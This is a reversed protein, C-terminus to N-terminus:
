HNHLYEELMQQYGRKNEVLQDVAFQLGPMFMSMATWLPEVIDQIFYYQASYTKYDEQLDHLFPSTMIGLKKEKKAQSRFEGYCREMWRKAVDRNQTQAGIDATHVLIRTFAIRSEPDFKAVTGKVLPDADVFSIEAGIGPPHVLTRQQSSSGSSSSSSSSSTPGSNGRRLKPPRRSSPSPNASRSHENNSSSGGGSANIGSLSGSSVNSKHVHGNVNLKFATRTIRHNTYSRAEELILPHKAMDTGLIILGVQRLLHEKDASNLGKLIDYETGSTFLLRHTQTAHHLELIGAGTPLRLSNKSLDSKIAEEFANSNGPHGLDHCLASIWVALIDLPLLYEAGGHLLIHFSVHTVGWVHKFNHFLNEPSYLNRVELMFNRASQEDFSFTSFMDFERLMEMAGDILEDDSHDYPDTNYNLVLEWARHQAPTRTVTTRSTGMDQTTKRRRKKETTEMQKESSNGVSSMDKSVVSSDNSSIDDYTHTTDAKPFRVSNNEVLM